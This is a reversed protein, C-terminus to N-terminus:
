FPVPKFDDVSLTGLVFLKDRSPVRSLLVYLLGAAFADHVHLITTHTLTAGQARHGTIAYALLLPFCGIRYKQGGHYTTHVVSRTVWREYGSDLRVRIRMVMPPIINSDAWKPEGFEVDTVIGIANASFKDSLTDTLIVRAGIAVNQLTPSRMFCKGVWAILDPNGAINSDEQVTEIPGQLLGQKAHWQLCTSNHQQIHRNHTCLFTAHPDNQKDLLGMVDEKPWYCQDLAADIQALTPKKKRILNLFRLLQQDGDQRYVHQLDFVPANALLPSAMVHCQRCVGEADLKHHCIGGLQKKDGLLIWVQLASLIAYWIDTFIIVCQANCHQTNTTMPALYKPNLAHISM